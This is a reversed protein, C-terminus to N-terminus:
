FKKRNGMYLKNRRRSIKLEVDGIGPSSVVKNVVIGDSTTFTDTANVITPILALVIGIMLAMMFYKVKTM